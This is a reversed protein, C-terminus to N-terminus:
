NIELRAVLKNTTESTLLTETIIETLEKVRAYSTLRRVSFGEQACFPILGHKEM